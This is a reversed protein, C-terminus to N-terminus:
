LEIYITKLINAYSINLTESIRKLKIRRDRFNLIMDFIAAFNEPTSVFATNM